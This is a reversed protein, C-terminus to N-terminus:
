LNIFFAEQTKRHKRYTGQGNDPSDGQGWPIYVSESENIKMEIAEPDLVELDRTNDIMDAIKVRKIKNRAWFLRQIYDEDSLKKGDRMKGKNRSLIYVGNSIEYGFVEQIKNMRLESDEVTDHLLATCKTVEDDYGYTALIDAVSLPHEHYPHVGDKRFQGRHYHMCYKRALEIKNNTHM